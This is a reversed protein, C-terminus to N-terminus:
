EKENLILILCSLTEVSTNQLCKHAHAHSLKQMLKINNHVLNNCKNTLPCSCQDHPKKM